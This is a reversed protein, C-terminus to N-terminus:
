PWLESPILFLDYAWTLPNLDGLVMFTVNVAAVLFPWAHPTALCGAPVKPLLARQM